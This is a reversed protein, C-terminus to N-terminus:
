AFPLLSSLALVAIAATEAETLFHGATDGTVGGFVKEARRCYFFTYLAFALCVCGGRFPNLFLMFGASAALEIILFILVGTKRSKTEEHLMGNKRAKKMLLSTLGSLCRATVFVTGLMAPIRIDTGDQWFLLSLSAALLLLIRVLGIVAFAGIHPDKLIELRKEASGYSRLADETDMFGDVHFGGTVAFPILMTLPVRVMAPLMGLGAPADAPSNLWFALGGIVAGVIPLFALAHEADGDRWTFRPMPIRSYMSFAAGLWRFIRM